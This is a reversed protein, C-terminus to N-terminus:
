PKLLDRKDVLVFAVGKWTAERAKLVVADAALGEPAKGPDTSFLMCQVRERAEGEVFLVYRVLWQGGPGAYAEYVYHRCQTQLLAHSTARLWDPPAPEAHYPPVVGLTRSGDPEPPMALGVLLAPLLPILM